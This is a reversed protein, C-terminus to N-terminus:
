FVSPGMSKITPLRTVEAVPLMSLVEKAFAAAVAAAPEQWGTCTNLQDDAYDCIGRIVICPFNTMLDPVETEICLLRHDSLGSNLDDRTSRDRIAVSTSAILGYHIVTKRPETNLSQILELNKINETIVNVHGNDIMGHEGKENLPDHLSDSILYKLALRKHEKMKALYEPVRSGEMEHISELKTLASLLISPPQGM